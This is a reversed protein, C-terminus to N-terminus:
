VRRGPRSSVIVDSVRILFVREAGPRTKRKEAQMGGVVDEVGGLGGLAERRTPAAEVQHEPNVPAPREGLGAVRM